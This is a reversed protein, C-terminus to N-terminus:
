GSDFRLSRSFPVIGRGILEVYGDYLRDIWNAGLIALVLRKLAAVYHRLRSLGLSSAPWRGLEVRRQVLHEIDDGSAQFRPWYGKPRPTMVCGCDSCRYCRLICPGTFGHFYRYIFGHSWVRYRGCSLCSDPRPWVFDRGLLFIENLNVAIVWIMISVTTKHPNIGLLIQASLEALVRRGSANLCHYIIRCNM